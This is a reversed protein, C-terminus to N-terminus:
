VPGSPGSYSDRDGREGAPRPREQRMMPSPETVLGSANIILHRLVADNFRFAHELEDITENDAEINM